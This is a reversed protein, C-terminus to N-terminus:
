PIIRNLRILADKYADMFEAEEVFAFRKYNLQLRNVEDNQNIQTADMEDVEITPISIYKTITVHYGDKNIMGYAWHRDRNHLYKFYVDAQIANPDETYYSDDDPNSLKWNDYNNYIM